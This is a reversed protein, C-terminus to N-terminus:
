PFSELLKILKNVGEGMVTIMSHCWLLVQIFIYITYVLGILAFAGLVCVFKIADKFFQFAIPKPFLISRLLNGKMTSFGTKVVVAKVTEDGYYRTQLVDTGAFLTHQKHSMTDYVDNNADHPAPPKMVATKTVPLSEGTLMSENVIATGSILVADCHMVGGNKPVLLIDGPILDLSNVQFSFIHVELHCDDIM